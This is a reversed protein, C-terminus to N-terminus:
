GKYFTHASGKHTVDMAEMWPRRTSHTAYHNAGGTYDPLDGTQAARAIDICQRFIPDSITVAEAKARNPDNANWMSFQWPQLCVGAPTGPWRHDAVRNMIVNAIMERERRTEGRGEGWITRAFIDTDHTLTRYAALPDNESVNLPPLGPDSIPGIDIVPPTYVPQVPGRLDLRFADGWGDSLLGLVDGATEPRARPIPVSAASARPRRLAFYGGALLALAGIAIIAQKSM